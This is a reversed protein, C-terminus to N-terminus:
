TRFVIFKYGIFNWTMGCLAAIIAGINAWIEATLGFQPGIVNVVLSASGVNIGLGVISVIFFQLFEKGPATTKSRKFTWFKNWFYSNIVAIAFSIGKFASYLGGSAIGSILILLNLVGLDIFTNLTGVLLFKAAQWVISLKRGIFAALFIGLLTLFSFVIPLLWRYPIETGVNKFIILFLIGILFGIIISITVDSKKLM